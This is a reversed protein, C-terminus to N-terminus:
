HRGQENEEDGVKDVRVEVTSLPLGVVADVVDEGEEEEEEDHAPLYFM